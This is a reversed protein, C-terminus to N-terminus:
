VTGIVFWPVIISPLTYAHKGYKKDSFITPREGFMRAHDSTIVTKGDVYRVFDKVYNLVYQLCKKYAYWADAETVIGESIMDWIRSKNPKYEYDDVRPVTWGRSDIIKGNEDIFPSHPQMLHVIIRKNSYQKAYKKARVIVPEPPITGLEEDWKDNNDIFKFFANRNLPKDHNATVYIIDDHSDEEISFNESMFKHSSKGLSLRTHLEGDMKINKKFLDYRCSDLIILNDWDKKCIKKTTLHTFKKLLYEKALQYM